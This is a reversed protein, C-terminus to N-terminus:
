QNLLIKTLEEVSGVPNTIGYSNLEEVTCYGYSVIIYEIKANIATQYDIDTDGVIIIKHQPYLERLQDIMCTDPKPKTDESVGIITDVQINQNVVFQLVQDKLRNSTIAIKIGKMKLLKLLEPIGEFVSVNQLESLLAQQYYQLISQFYDKQNTQVIQQLLIEPDYANMTKLQKLSQQPLNFYTLTKNLACEIYMLRTNTLTGGLDFAILTM